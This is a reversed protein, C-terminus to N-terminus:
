AVIWSRIRKYGHRSIKIKDEDCFIGLKAERLLQVDREITRTDVGYEDALEHITIQSHPSVFSLINFLRSIRKEWM